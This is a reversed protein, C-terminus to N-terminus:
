CRVFNSCPQRGRQDYIGFSALWVRGRGKSGMRLYSMVGCVDMRLFLERKSCAAGRKTTMVKSISRLSDVFCKKMKKFRAKAVEHSDHQLTELVVASFPLSPRTQFPHIIVSYCVCM